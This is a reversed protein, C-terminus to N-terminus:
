PKGARRRHGTLDTAKILKEPASPARWLQVLHQEDTGADRGQVSVRTRYMCTSPWVRDFEILTVAQHGPAAARLTGTTPPPGPVDITHFPWSYEAIDDWPDTELPPPGDLLEATLDVAGNRTGTLIHSRIALGNGEDLWANDDLRYASVPFPHDTGPAAFLAYCGLEDIHVSTTHHQPASPQPPAPLHDGLGERIRDRLSRALTADQPDLGARQFASVDLLEALLFWHDPTLAVTVTTEEPLEITRHSTHEWLEYFIASYEDAEAPDGGERLSQSSNDLQGVLRHRDKLSVEMPYLDNM